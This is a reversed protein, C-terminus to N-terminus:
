YPSLPGRRRCIDCGKSATSVSHRMNAPSAMFHPHLPNVACRWWYKTKRGAPIEAMQLCGNQETLWQNLLEPKVEALSNGPKPCRPCSTGNTRNNVTAEFSHGFRNCKWWHKEASSGYSIKDPRFGNKETDWESALEPFRTALSDEPAILKGTCYPCDNGLVKNKITAEYNPHGKACRWIVRKASGFSYSSLPLPNKPSYIDLLHPAILAANNKLHIGPLLSTMKKFEVEAQFTEKELYSRAFDPLIRNCLSFITRITENLDSKTLAPKETVVDNEGIPKLPYHRVRLTEIGISKLANNKERDKEDKGAHWHSGDYEIALNLSPIYVDVEISSIRARYDIDSFLTELECFLRVEPTSGQNNCYRCGAGRTRNKIVARWRHADPFRSCIWYVKKSSGATVSSPNIINKVRDWEKIIEPHTITLANQDTVIRGTCIKCTAKGWSTRKGISQQFVHELHDLCQWYVIKKSGYRVNEPTLTGNLKPHWTKAIEPYRTALSNIKNVARGVSACAPCGSNLRSRNAIRAEWEHSCSGCRWHAKKGSFPSILDMQLGISVNRQVDWDNILKPFLSKLNYKRSVRQRPM